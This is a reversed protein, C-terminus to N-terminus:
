HIRDDDRGGQLVEFGRKKRLRNLRFRFWREQTRLWLERAASAVSAGPTLLLWAAAIGACLGVLGPLDHTTLFGLFAFLAELLLFWKAQVPLVFFLLITANRNLLAFAAVLLALVMRQGQMLVFALPFASPGALLHGAADVAVAAVGALISTIVLFRWFRKRGLQYVLTRGFLFLILLELVFWLGASGTAAFPYTAIRWIQSSSWATSALELLRPLWALASFFRCSLTALLIGLLVWVDTPVPGTLGFGGGSAHSAYRM